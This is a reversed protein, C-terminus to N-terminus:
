FCRWITCFLLFLVGMEWIAALKAHEIGLFVFADTGECAAFLAGFMAAFVACVFAQATKGRLYKMMSVGETGVADASQLLVSFGAFGLVLGGCFFRANGEGLAGLRAFGCSIECAGAILAGFFGGSLERPLLSSLM